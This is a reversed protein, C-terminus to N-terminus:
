SSSATTRQKRRHTLVAAILGLGFAFQSWADPAPVASPVNGFQGGLASTLYVGAPLAFSITGTNLMDIEGLSFASNAGFALTFSDGVSLNAVTHSATIDFPISYPATEFTTNPAFTVTAGPFETVRFQELFNNSSAPSFTGIEATVNGGVLGNGKPGGAVISRMIGTLNLMATVPFSNTPTGHVVYTDQFSANMFSPANGSLFTRISNASLEASGTAHQRGSNGFFTQRAIGHPPNNGSQNSGACDIGAAVGGLCADSDMEMWVTSGNPMNIFAAHGSGLPLMMGMLCVTLTVIARNM